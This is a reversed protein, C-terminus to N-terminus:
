RHGCAVPACDGCDANCDGNTPQVFPYTWHQSLDGFAKRALELTFQVPNEGSSTAIVEGRRRPRHHIFHGVYEECFSEYDQTFLIFNHWFDDITPSPVVGEKTTAALALYRKLDEFAVRAEVEDWGYKDVMRHILPDFQYSM